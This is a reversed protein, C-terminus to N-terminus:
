RRDRIICFMQPSRVSEQHAIEPGSAPSWTSLNACWHSQIWYAHRPSVVAAHPLRVAPSCPTSDQLCDRLDHTITIIGDALGSYPTFASNCPMDSDIALRSTSGKLWFTMSSSSPARDIVASAVYRASLTMLADLTRTIGECDRLSPVKIKM